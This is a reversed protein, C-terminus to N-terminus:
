YTYKKEECSDKQGPSFITATILSQLWAILVLEDLCYLRGGLCLSGVRFHVCRGTTFGSFPILGQLVGGAISIKDGKSTKHPLFVVSLCKNQM